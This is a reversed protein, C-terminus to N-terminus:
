QGSSSTVQRPLIMSTLWPHGKAVLGALATSLEQLKSFPASETM